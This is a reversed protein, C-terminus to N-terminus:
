ESYRVARIGSPRLMAEQQNALTNTVRLELRDGPARAPLEFDYPSWIRKAVVRGNHLLEVVDDSEVRLRRAEPPLDLSYSVAGSYFPAGQGTWSGVRLTARRPSLRVEAREPCFMRLSYIISYERAFDGATTVTADFDGALYIHTHVSPAAAVAFTHCGPSVPADYALYEDDFVKASMPVGPPCSDISLLQLKSTIFLKLSNIGVENRWETLNWMPVMNEHQWTVPFPGPLERWEATQPLRFQEMPGGLVAIEGPALAIAQERGRWRITGTAEHDSWINGALLVRSGDPLLREHFLLEGGDFSAPPPPLTGPNAADEVVPLGRAQGDEADEVFVFQVGTRLLRDCLAFFPEPDHHNGWLERVPLRVALQPAFDGQSAVECAWALWDNFEPNAAEWISHLFEPPAFDKTEGFFRHHVAHPILFNVGCLVQWAAIRRLTAPTAEHNTAAFLECLARKRRGLFAASGALKARLDYRTCSFEPNRWRSLDASGWSVAPVFYRRDYHTGGDLAALEHDTGPLDSLALLSLPLGETFVSSRPTVTWELPGTDSTHFTYKLGHAHCWEANRVFWQRYLFGAHEWYDRAAPTDRRALVEDLRPAIDYGHRKRFTAAFNASWPFYREGPMKAATFANVRRNDADSFFGAVPAGFFEGLRRAYEEYVIEHFLESSRPEEFAPSGWECVVPAIRGDPTRVLRQQRLEPHERSIRGGPDGPPFDFGDNLWVELGRARAAVLFRRTVEFWWESLYENEDFGTPPKNFLVLGGFGAAQLRALARDIEAPTYAAEATTNLFYFPIPRYTM